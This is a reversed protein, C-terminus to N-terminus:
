LIRKDIDSTEQSYEKDKIYRKIDFYWPKGDKEEEILCCHAPKGRCRFEIHPLDRYPSVQFMSALTALADAM